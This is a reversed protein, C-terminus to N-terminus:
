AAPGDPRGTHEQRLGDARGPGPLDRGSDDLDVGDVAPLPSDPHTFSVHEFRVHGALRAPDIDAPVAPDAIEVPLDLYEFIRAFLALSSTLSIGVSMLGLLPRFLGTQLATFAVVTGISIKGATAPLGAALYIVAPM